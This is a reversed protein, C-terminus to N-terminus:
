ISIFDAVDLLWRIIIQTIASGQLFKIVLKRLYAAVSLLKVSLMFLSGLQRQSLWDYQNDTVKLTM